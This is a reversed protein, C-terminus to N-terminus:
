KLIGEFDDGSAFLLSVNTNCHGHRDFTSEITFNVPIKDRGTDENNAGSEAIIDLANELGKLTAGSDCCADSAYLGGCFANLLTLTFVLIDSMKLAINILTVGGKNLRAFLEVDNKRSHGELIDNAKDVRVDNVHRNEKCRVADEEPGVKVM